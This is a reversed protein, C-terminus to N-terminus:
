QLLPVLCIKTPISKVPNLIIRAECYEVCLIPNLLFYAFNDIRASMNCCIMHVILILRAGWSMIIYIESWDYFFIQIEVM